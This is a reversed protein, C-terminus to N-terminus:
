KMVDNLMSNLLLLNDQLDKDTYGHREKHCEIILDPFINNSKFDNLIYKIPVNGYEVLKHQDESGDNDNIHIEYIRNKLVELMKDIYENDKLKNQNYHLHGTNLIIGIKEPINLFDEPMSYLYGREPRYNFNEISLRINSNSYDTLRNLSNISNEYAKEFSMGSEVNLPEFEKNQVLNDAAYGGHFSLNEAGIEIGFDISKKLTTISNDQIEKNSSAINIFFDPNPLWISQHLAYKINYSKKLELLKSVTGSFDDEPYSAGIQVLPRLKVNNFINVLKEVKDIINKNKFGYFITSIGIM